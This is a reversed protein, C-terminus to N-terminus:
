APFWGLVEIRDIIAVGELHFDRTGQPGVKVRHTTHRGSCFGAKSGDGDLIDLEGDRLYVTVLVDGPGPVHLDDAVPSNTWVNIRGQLELGGFFAPNASAVYRNMLDKGGPTPDPPTSSTILQWDAFDLGNMWRGACATGEGPLAWLGHGQIPLWSGKQAQIARLGEAIGRLQLASPAVETFTGMAVLGILEHNRGAVHARQGDFDGIQYVRGSPFAAAHYAFLQYGLGIHYAEVVKLAAIEEAQTADAPMTQTVSHHVAIGIPATIKKVNGASDMRGRPNVFMTRVDIM